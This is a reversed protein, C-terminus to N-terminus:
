DELPLTTRVPEPKLPATRTGNLTVCVNIRRASKMEPPSMRAVFMFRGREHAHESWMRRNAIGVPGGKEDELTYEVVVDSPILDPLAISACVVGWDPTHLDPYVRVDEVRVPARQPRRAARPLAEGPTPEEEFSRAEDATGAM